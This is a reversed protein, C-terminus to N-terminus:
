EDFINVSSMYLLETIKEAYLICRNQYDGRLKKHRRVYEFPTEDIVEAGYIPKSNEVEIRYNIFYYEKM